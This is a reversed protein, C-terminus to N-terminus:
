IFMLLTKIQSYQYIYHFRSSSTEVLLINSSSTFYMTYCYEVSRTGCRSMINFKM